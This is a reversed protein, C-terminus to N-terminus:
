YLNLYLHPSQEFTEQSEFFPQSTTTAPSTSYLEVRNLQLSRRVKMGICQLLATERVLRGTFQTETRSLSPIEPSQADLRRQVEGAVPSPLQSPERLHKQGDSRRLLTLVPPKDPEFTGGGKKLTRARASECGRRRTGRRVLRSTSKTLKPCTRSNSPTSIM